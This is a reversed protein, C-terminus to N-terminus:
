RLPAIIQDYLEGDIMAPDNLQRHLDGDILSAAASAVRILDDRLEDEVAHVASRYLGVMAILGVAVMALTAASADRIARWNRARPPAQSATPDNPNAKEPGM